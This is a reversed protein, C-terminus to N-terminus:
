ARPAQPRSTAPATASAAGLIRGDPAQVLVAIGENDSPPEVTFTAAKGDWRGLTTLATVGNVDTATRGANEGGKVQTSRSLAYRVLLVITNGSASEPGNGGGIAVSRRDGAFAVPAIAVPQAKALAAQVEARDSGVADQTGDIVMQPTYVQGGTLRQDYTRQRETAARLSLPDRWQAGDWYTIHFGLAVVDARKALEGLFADAPPCSSCGQSTFLEVVFPRTEAASAASSALLALIVFIAKM